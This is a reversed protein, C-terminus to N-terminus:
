NRARLFANLKTVKAGTNIYEVKGLLTDFIGQEDASKSYEEIVANVQTQTKMRTMAMALRLAAFETMPKYRENASQIASSLEDKSRCRSIAQSIAMGYGPNGEVMRWVYQNTYNLEEIQKPVNVSKVRLFFNFFGKGKGGDGKYPTPPIILDKSKDNDNVNDNENVNVNDNDNVNDAVNAVNQSENTANAINAVNQSNGWRKENGKRGAERRREVTKEYRERNRDIQKKIIAMTMKIEVPTEIEMGNIAYQLIAEYFQCRIRQDEITHAADLWDAYFVCSEKTNM